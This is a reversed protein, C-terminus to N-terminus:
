NLLYEFALLCRCLDVLDEIKKLRGDAIEIAFAKLSKKQDEPLDEIQPIKGRKTFIRYCGMLVQKPVDCGPLAIM